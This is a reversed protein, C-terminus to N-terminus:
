RMIKAPSRWAQYLRNLTNAREDVAQAAWEAAEVVATELQTDREYSIVKLFTVEESLAAHMATAPRGRQRLVATIFKLEHCLRLEDIHGSPEVDDVIVFRCISAYTVLKEPLSQEEIDPYEDLILGTLGYTALAAKIRELRPRRHGYKGTIVVYQKKCKAAGALTRLHDPLLM